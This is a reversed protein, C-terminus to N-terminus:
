EFEFDSDHSTFEITCEPNESTQSEFNWNDNKKISHITSNKFRNEDYEVSSYKSEFNMKFNLSSPLPLQINCYKFEGSFSKFKESVKNTELDSDYMSTLQIKEQVSEFSFNDYKSEEVVLEVIGKAKIENDYLEDSKLLGIIGADIESYKSDLLLVKINEAEIKSDYLTIACKDLNSRFEFESYKAEGEINTLQIFHINDDYSELVFNGAKQIEVDSYKTDMKLDGVEGFTVDSDYLTIKGNKGNKLEANSYTLKLEYNNGFNGGEIEGNYIDMKVEGALDDSVIKNYKCELSLNQNAPIWLTYNASFNKISVKENNTLKMRSGFPTKSFSKYFKTNIEIGGFGKDVDPNRFVEIVKKYDEESVGKLSIKGTLKVNNKSWTKIQLDTDHSKFTLESSVKIDFEKEM